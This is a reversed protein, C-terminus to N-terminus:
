MKNHQEKKDQLKKEYEHGYREIYYVIKTIAMIVVIGFALAVSVELTELIRTIGDLTDGLVISRMSYYLMGGPVLVVLSTFIFMTAPTKIIRAMVQSYLTGVLAPIFNCLFLNEPVFLNMIAYVGWVILGGLTSIILRKRRLGFLISFGLTGFLASIGQKVLEMESM